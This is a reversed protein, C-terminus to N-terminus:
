RRLYFDLIGEYTTNNFRQMAKHRARLAKDTLLFDLVEHFISQDKLCIPCNSPIANKVLTMFLSINYRTLFIGSTLGQNLSHSQRSTDTRRQM